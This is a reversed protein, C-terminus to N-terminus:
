GPDDTTPTCVSNAQKAFAGATEPALPLAFWFTSGVGPTSDVGVEGHMAAVLERVLVLGIGTGEGGGFKELREFPRFLLSLDEAAIGPGSDRVEIRLRTHAALASVQVQGGERNYKIANSLLNLLVQKVRLRDGWATAEAPVDLDVAIGRRTALPRVQTLCDALIPALAVTELHVEIRGSEIRALDLIENVMTLLHEGARIIEQVSDAQSPDLTAADMELLQGFGLIANLPTRLEHSMHSLFRSKARNAAEAVRRAEEAADRSAALEATRARVIAELEEHHRRLELETRLLAQLPIRRGPCWIAWAAIASFLLVLAGTHLMTAQSVTVTLQGVPAGFLYVTRSRSQSFFGPQPGIVFLTSGAANSLRVLQQAPVFPEFRARLRDLNDEWYDPHRQLYEEVVRVQLQLGADVQERTTAYAHWAIFGSPVVLLLLALTTTLQTILRAVKAYYFRSM